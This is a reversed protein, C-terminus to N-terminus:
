DWSDLVALLTPHVRRAHAESVRKCNDRLYALSVSTSGVPSNPSDLIGAEAEYCPQGGSLFIGNAVFAAIVTGKSKKKRRDAFEEYFRIGKM